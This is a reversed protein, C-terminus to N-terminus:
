NFHKKTFAFLGKLHLKVWSKLSVCACLLSFQYMGFLVMIFRVYHRVYKKRKLLYSFLENKRIKELYERKQKRTMNWSGSQINEFCVELENLAFKVVEGEYDAAELGWNELTQYYQAVLDAILEHYNEPSKRYLEESSNLKYHYTVEPIRKCKTVHSFYAVNFFGDELRTMTPFRIQFHEIIDRKYIKNWLYGTEGNPYNGAFYKQVESETVWEKEDFIVNSENLGDESFNHFSSIVVDYDMSVAENYLTEFANTELYDDADVFIIYNGRAVDLGANRPTAANGENEKLLYQVRPDKEKYEACIKASDDLSGNNVLILEFDSFTQNLISNICRPLYKECNYVPVIVSIEM